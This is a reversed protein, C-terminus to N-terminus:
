PAGWNASAVFTIVGSDEDFQHQDLHVAQLAPQKQLRELYDLIAELSDSEGRLTLLHRQPDPDASALRVEDGTPTELARVVGSWPYSLETSMAADDPRQSMATKQLALPQRSLLHDRLFREGESRDNIQRYQELLLSSWLACLALATIGLVKRPKGAGLLNHHLKMKM